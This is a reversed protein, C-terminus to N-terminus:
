IFFNSVGGVILSEKSNKADFEEVKGNIFIAVKAITFTDIKRSILADCM